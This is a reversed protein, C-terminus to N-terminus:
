HQQIQSSFAVTFPLESVQSTSASTQDFILLKYSGERTGAPVTFFVAKKALEQTVKKAVLTNGRADQMKAIFVSDTQSPAAHIDFFLDFSKSPEVEILAGASGHASANVLPFWPRVETEAAFNSKQMRPISVLNQYGVIFLLAAFAPVMVFRKSWGFWRSSGPVAVPKEPAASEAFFQRSSAAFAVGARLNLACDACDFYHEEFQARLLPSLEGLVYKEVAQLQVAETHDM